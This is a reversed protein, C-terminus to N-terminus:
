RSQLHYAEAGGAMVIRASSMDTSWIAIRQFIAESGFDGYLRLRSCTPAIIAIILALLIFPFPSTTWFIIDRFASNMCYRGASSCLRLLVSLFGSALVHVQMSSKMM